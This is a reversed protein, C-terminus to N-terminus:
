VYTRKLEEQTQIFNSVTEFDPTGDTAGLKRVVFDAVATGLTIADEINMKRYLGTLIGSVFADGAGTTDLAPSPFAGSYFSREATRCFSGASGLKLIVVSVGHDALIAAIEEPKEAGTIEQAENLSPIFYDLYPLSPSILERWKGKQSWAVDMSTTLGAEKAAKLLAAAPNGDFEPLHYFGGIHLHEATSFLGQDIDDLKLEENSGHYHLFCREGNERVLGVVKSNPRKESRSCRSVDVGTREANDLLFQGFMDNGAKGQFSVPVGLKALNLSVNLADGGSKLAIDDVLMSDVTFDIADVPHVVIDAVMEGVCIIGM